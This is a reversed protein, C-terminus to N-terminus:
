GGSFWMAKGGALRPGTFRPEAAGSWNGKRAASGFSARPHGTSMRDDSSAGGKAEGARRPKKKSGGLAAVPNRLLRGGSAHRDVDHGGM